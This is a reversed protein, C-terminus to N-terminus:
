VEAASYSITWVRVGKRKELPEVDGRKRLYYLNSRVRRAMAPRAAEGNGTAALVGTVIETSTLPKGEAKRLVDRITRGLEGPRFLNVHRRPRKMPVSGADYDPSLIRLTEDIHILQERKHRLQRKMQEIEGAITARKDKLAALAYKNGKDNM